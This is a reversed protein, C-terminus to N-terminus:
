YFYTYCFGSLNDIEMGSLNTKIEQFGAGVASFAYFDNSM